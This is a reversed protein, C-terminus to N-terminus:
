SRRIRPLRSGRQVNRRLLHDEVADLVGQPIQAGAGKDFFVTRPQNHLAPFQDRVWSIPFVATLAGPESMLMLVEQRRGGQMAVIEPLVGSNAVPREM